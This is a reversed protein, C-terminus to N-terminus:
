HGGRAALRAARRVQYPHGALYNLKNVLKVVIKKLFSNKRLKFNKRMIQQFFIGNFM